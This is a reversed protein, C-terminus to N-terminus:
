QSEQSTNGGTETPLRLGRDVVSLRLGPLANTVVNGALQVVPAATGDAQEPSAKPALTAVPKGPATEGSAVMDAQVMNGQSPAVNVTGIVSSIASQLAETPNVKLVGDIYKLTYNGSSQGSASVLYMGAVSGTSATTDFALSGGLEGALTDAGLLGTYSATFLPNTRGQDKETNDVKVTLDARSITATTSATTNALTYNGADSGGLSIGTVSVTKGSAANKDAFSGTATAVTLKDGGVMGTFAASGTNLSAATSTDYVKNGATIGSVNAITAKAIDATTSATSNVLTYNGADAGGLAIGTVSVTKGSAANKDVFGGSASIVVLNDGGVMGAFSAGGTNLSAGANGDYVKSNATIGGIASISAKAIDATTSATSNLLTYNGADTGGLAIGTVSVTKGSAANKDAFSGSAGTVALNDGGVM